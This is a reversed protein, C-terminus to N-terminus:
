ILGELADVVDAATKKGLQKPVEAVINRTFVVVPVLREEPTAGGHLEFLKGGMKPLRNYGRVIWYTKKTEPFYEQELEPPRPVGQPALSYRWDDPQGEWPLTTSKGENHAIVALRSAGHDATVVVRTYHTLGDAIRNMIETEFIRLTEAFNREPPCFEHKVAGYHVINDISKIEPLIRAEDWKIPNFVTETPLKATVIAQSEINMGRRKALALLLPMYEAGMADVVLLAVDAQTQLEAMVAERSPNTKPVVFDFARKAFSDTISGSVKLRRYERFYATTVDDEYEFASSFYDALTPFLEAYQKPLGYSLDEESARRVIEIRESNTGCNLFQLADDSEKTQGIFEVILSEYDSSIARLAEARELAYKKANAESLVAIASGVIYKWLLNDRTIDETLTKAIYSDSPLRRRLSWIHAQWLSDAPLELLRKLALRTNINGVGFLTELYNEASQGSEISKSLLSELTAEDLDADICYYHAAVDRTELVFRVANGIGAQRDTLGALILTYNGSPEYQSMQGLLQKYGAVGDSKVWKDSYAQISLPELTEENGEIFVVSRAEEYRPAFNPNSHASLLYDANLANADLRSRLESMFAILSEADLLALYADLGVVLARSTLAQIKADIASMLVNPMPLHTDNDSLCDGAKIITAGIKHHNLLQAATTNNPYVIVRPANPNSFVAGFYRNLTYAM